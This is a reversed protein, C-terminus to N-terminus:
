LYGYQRLKENHEEITKSFDHKGGGDPIAVFFKYGDDTDPALAAEISPLGPSCIPGPPLGRNRYTNYRELEEPLPLDRLSGGEPVDWFLYDVWQEFPIEELAVTDAAYIVTPDAALVQESGSGNLRNQYAGAILPREEDLQAEREVISALTLREFFTAQSAREEGVEQVFEDLM